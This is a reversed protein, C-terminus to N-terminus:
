CDRREALVSEYIAMLQQYNQEATYLRNFTRRASSRMRALRSPDAVLREVARALDASDGPTFKSGSVGEEVIENLSGIRSAIVPTGCAFAELVVLPFGEYWESPVIQLAAERVICLVEATPKRGVLEIQLRNVAILQKIEDYQPGDGIMKLPLTSVNKWADVLTRIGKEPSLRGVYVAYRGQGAGPEPPNPLFNPKVVIRDAPLGGAKLRSAAFETLAIYRDVNHRYSGAVRNVALMLVVASTAPLSGRYCRHRLAPLLSRGVCDECPKGGRLLLGGPCILRYNHLTQVVGVGLKRCAAYASPSIQPFTNHFHVVDPREVRILETLDRHTTRSWSTAAGLRLQNVPGRDDLDDNRKICSLVAVGRSELLARERAFVIDEGSPASSRYFNHVLLVRLSRSSM